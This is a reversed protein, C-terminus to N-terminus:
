KLEKCLIHPKSEYKMEPIYEKLDNVYVEGNSVARYNIFDIIEFLEKNYIEMVLNSDVVICKIEKIYAPKGEKQEVLNGLFIKDVGYKM